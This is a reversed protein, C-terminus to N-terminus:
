TRNRISYIKQGVIRALCNAVTNSSPLMLVYLADRFTFVEGGTLTPGSGSQVDEALLEFTSDLDKIWKVTLYFTMMKTMSATIFQTSGDLSYLFAKDTGDLINQEDYAAGYQPTLIVTANTLLGSMTAEIEKVAAKCTADQINDSNTIGYEGAARLLKAIDALKKAYVHRNNTSTEATTSSTCITFIDQTDKAKLTICYNYRGGYTGTKGGLLLYDTKMVDAWGDHDVITSNVTITRVVGSTKVTKEKCSWIEVMEPYSMGKAGLKVTDNATTVNATALGSASQYVTNTMGIATAEAMMEDYFTQRAVNSTCPISSDKGKILTRYISKSYSGGHRKIELYNKYLESLIGVSPSSTFISMQIIVPMDVYGDLNAGTYSGVTGRFNSSYNGIGGVVVFGDTVSEVWASQPNSGRTVGLYGASRRTCKVNAAMFTYDSATYPTPTGLQCSSSGQVKLVYKGVAGEANSETATEVLTPTTVGSPVTLPAWSNNEFGPDIGLTNNTEFVERYTMGDIAETDLTVIEEGIQLKLTTNDDESVFNYDILKRYDDEPIVDGRKLKYYTEYLDSMFDESPMNEFITMDVAVPMDIYGDLNAGSISGIFIGAASSSTRTKYGSILEWGSTVGDIGLLETPTAAGRTLGLYGASRRECKVSAGFFTVTSIPLAASEPTKWQTSTSGFAKLVYDGVSDSVESGAVLVPVPTTGNQILTGQTGDAFGPQIGLINNTEFIDRYSKGEYVIDDLTKQRTGNQIKLVTHHNESILDEPQLGGSSGTAPFVNGDTDVKLFKGSNESGQNSSVFEDDAETKTYYDNLDSSTLFESDAEQKTYYNDM